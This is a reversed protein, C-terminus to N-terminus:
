INFSNGQFDKSALLVDLVSDGTDNFMYSSIHDILDEIVYDTPRVQLYPSVVLGTYWIGHNLQRSVFQCHIMAGRFTGRM